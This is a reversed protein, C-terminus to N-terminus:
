SRKAVLRLREIPMDRDRLPNDMRLDCMKGVKRIRGFLIHGNWEFWVRDGVEFMM